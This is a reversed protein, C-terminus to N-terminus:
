ICIKYLYFIVVINELKSLYKLCFKKQHLMIRAIRPRWISTVTRNRIFLFITPYFLRLM